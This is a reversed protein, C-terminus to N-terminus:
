LVGHEKAEWAVSHSFQNIFAKTASTTITQIEAVGAQVRRINLGGGNLQNSPDATARELLPRPCDYDLMLYQQGFVVGQVRGAM